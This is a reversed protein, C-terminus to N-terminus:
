DWTFGEMEYRAKFAAAITMFMEVSMEIIVAPEEPWRAAIMCAPKGSAMGKSLYIARVESGPHSDQQSYKTGIGYESEAWDQLAGDGELIVNVHGTM